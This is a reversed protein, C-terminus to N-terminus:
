FSGGQAAGRLGEWRSDPRLGKFLAGASLARQFSVLDCSSAPNVAVPWAGSGPWGERSKRAPLIRLAEVEPVEAGVM